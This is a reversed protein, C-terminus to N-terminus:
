NFSTYYTVIEDVFAVFLAKSFFRGNDLKHGGTCTMGGLPLQQPWAFISILVTTGKMPTVLRARTGLKCGYLSLYRHQWNSVLRAGCSTLYFPGRDRSMFLVQHDESVLAPLWMCAPGILICSLGREGEGQWTCLRDKYHHLNTYFVFLCFCPIPAKNNLSVFLPGIWRRALAHILVCYTHNWQM